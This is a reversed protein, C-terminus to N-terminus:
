SVSGSVLMSASFHGRVFGREEVSWQKRVKMRHTVTPTRAAKRASLTM